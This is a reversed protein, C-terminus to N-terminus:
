KTNRIIFDVIPKVESEGKFSLFHGEGERVIVTVSGGLAKYKKEVERTQSALYPDLSGCLHLIHVGAKALPALTDILQLKPQNACTMVPNEGYICSVKDPNDIAWAYAEGAAAGRGEMVPKKSLGNETLYNYVFTWETVLPGYVNSMPGTFIYYGKSLLALDVAADRGVFDARYIWPKGPAPNNPIIVSVGNHVGEIKFDYRDFCESFLPGRCEIYRNEAPFYKYTNEIGYYNFKTANKGVFSPAEKIVTHFSNEIFDAIPKPDRLSHPHHGLGEQVMVSIKGGLHQYLSEIAETHNGLLFDISGCVNLLLVGNQALGDLKMLSEKSIAPNDAYICTVKDPNATAWMYENFGGMSMGIFAPKKSFGHKETLFAYWADWQKGPAPTIFAIYFGRGLLEVEAQPQHDWYCAQWSWPNGSAAVKPVVVICRRQGKAPAGVSNKEGEPAKIPTIELTQEDMVFDYRDYGHWSTKEPGFGSNQAAVPAIGLLCVACVIFFLVASNRIKLRFYHKNLTVDIEKM